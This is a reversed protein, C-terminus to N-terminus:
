KHCQVHISSAPPEDGSGVGTEQERSKCNGMGNDYEGMMGFRARTCKTDRREDRTFRGMEIYPGRTSRLTTLADGSHTM